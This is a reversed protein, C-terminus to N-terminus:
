PRRLPCEIADSNTEPSEEKKFLAVAALVADSATGHM